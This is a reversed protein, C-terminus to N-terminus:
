DGDAILTNLQSAVMYLPDILRVVGIHKAIENIKRKVMPPNVPNCRTRERGVHVQVVSVEDDSVKVIHHHASCKHGEQTAQEM